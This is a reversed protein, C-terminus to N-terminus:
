TSSTEADLLISLNHSGSALEPHWFLVKGFVEFKQIRQSIVM